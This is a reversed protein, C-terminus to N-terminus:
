GAPAGPQEYLAIIHDETWDDQNGVTFTTRSETGAQRTAGPFLDAPKLDRTIFFPSPSTRGTLALRVREPDDFFYEELLPIVRRRLVERVDDLSSLETFYGHGIRHDRDLLYELRDNLRQLLRRLDIRGVMAPEILSPDPQVEEWTFRRRMAIDMMAISRDATNMTGIIDINDPVGFPEELGPATIWFGKEKALSGASVRKGPEILTILEGFVKALNARNIEDIYLTYRNTPHEHALECLKLFPGKEYRVIIGQNDNSEVPRLGGFFDEYAYSPHFTVFVSNNGTKFTDRRHLDLKRTKGTGPPGYYIVNTVPRVPTEGDVVTEDTAPEGTLPEVEAAMDVTKTKKTTPPRYLVPAVSGELYYDFDVRHTDELRRRVDFLARDMAPRDKGFAPTWVGFERVVVNKQSESFIREFQDPFFVHCLAHYLQRGKAQPISNLWGAFTWADEFVARREDVGKSALNAFASVAFLVEMWLYLNYGPGGSGLGSLVDTTLFPSQSPFDDLADIKWIFEVRDRKYGPALNNTPLEVLWFLEAMLATTQKGAGALQGALKEYFTGKGANPQDVYSSILIDFNAPAWIDRHGSLLSTGEFLCREKFTQAAEFVRDANSFHPNYRSM